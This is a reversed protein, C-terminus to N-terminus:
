AHGNGLLYFNVAESYYGNSSGYWSITVYGKATALKYFTWTESDGDPTEGGNSSEEALLIPSGVLDELDGVIEHIYVSECCDQPHNMRFITHEDVVFFVADEDKSERRVSQLTLGLLSEFPRSEDYRPM